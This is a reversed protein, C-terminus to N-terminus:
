DREFIAVADPPLELRAAGNGAGNGSDRLAVPYALVRTGRPRALHAPRDGLNAIVSIAGRELAFWRAREDWACLVRDRRGDRLEARRRRLEALARYWALIEAHRRDDLEDWDLRSRRFAEPAGPDPVQEPDWGRLALETRRGDRVARRLEASEHDVFYEFPTSAGWEEGQFIMPVFPAAFLVAAAFRLRGPTTLHALREGRPRNGIQDHNQTYAVLHTGDAVSVHDAPRRWAPLRVEDCGRRLARALNALPAQDDYYTSGDTTLAARLAYHLDDYWLADLGAGGHEPPTVLRADEGEHEAVLTIARGHAQEFARARDALEDLFHVPSRDILAHTADLRLGDAGQELWGIANDLFFARVAPAALDIAAGWPTHERETFYPGFDGLYNGDPGLHNYVVDLIVALGRAHAADLFRRLADPGGYPEHVAYLGVGDYGWGHAGPFANLPMLEVHTVGLAVLHELRDIAADLTGGETFTGVHLEYVLADRWPPPTFRHHRREHPQARPWRSRGHVGHPLEAARPDPREAGGDISIAYEAGPAPPEASWWGDAEPAAARRVGGTILEVRQARPAWVRFREEIPGTM